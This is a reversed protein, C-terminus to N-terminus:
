SKKLFCTKLVLTSGDVRCEVVESDHAVLHIKKVLTGRKLDSSGGKVKLDKIVTVSDGESLPTGNSDLVPAGPASERDDAGSTSELFSLLSHLWARAETETAFWRNAVAGIDELSLASSESAFSRLQAIVKQIKAPPDKKVFSVVAAQDAGGDSDLDALYTSFFLSLEPALNPKMSATM